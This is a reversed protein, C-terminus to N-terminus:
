GDSVHDSSRSAASCLSSTEPAWHHRTPWRMMSLFSSVESGPCAGCPRRGSSLVTPPVVLWDLSESRLLAHTPRDSGAFAAPDVRVSRLPQPGRAWVLHASSKWSSSVVLLRAQPQQVDYSFVGALCQSPLGPRDAGGIADHVHEDGQDPHRRM